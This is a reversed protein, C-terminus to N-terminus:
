DRRIERALLPDSVRSIIRARAKLRALLRAVRADLSFGEERSPFTAALINSALRVLIARSALFITSALTSKIYICRSAEDERASDKSFSGLKAIVGSEEVFM